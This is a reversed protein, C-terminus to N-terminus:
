RTEGLGSRFESKIMETHVVKTASHGGSHGGKADVRVCDAEHKIV